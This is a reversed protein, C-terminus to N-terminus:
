RGVAPGDSGVLTDHPARLAAVDAWAQDAGATISGLDSGVFLLRAGADLYRRTDDSTFSFAGKALGNKEAVQFIHDIAARHEGGGVEVGLALALDFPGIVVADLGPTALIEDVGEFGARTEVQITVLVAANAARVHEALDAGYGSGRGPGAGRAGEPAYRARRVVEAAEAASDIRPVVIGAAGCDLVRNIHVGVEPVRVIAPKRHVDAARIMEEVGGIGVPTHESEILLADFESRGLSEVVMPSPILVSTAILPERRIRHRLEHFTM